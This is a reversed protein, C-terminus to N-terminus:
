WSRGRRLLGAVGIVAVALVTIEVMTDLGRFDALIVTVIDGGHAEPTLAVQEASDGRIPSTRSLTAWIVAFSAAGSVVGAAVNRRTRSPWSAERRRPQPLRSFVGVFVVTFITEVLVAVLAVDPAGTVAYVAALAFGIVSLALVPRLRGSDRVVTFSAAVSLVLLVLIPVDELEVAGVTFSGSTPTFAFGLAVLVGTPVLVAAISTRLDRVETEHLRDSFTNLGRLTRGYWRRPGIADGARGFARAVADRVRGFILFAAGLVWAALAMTNEARADLHYAPSLEVAAGHTVTAADGALAAFPGVVFGGAVAIAALLVVPAVLLVPIAQTETRRAGTFLGLWFRGIYAFSLAAALVALMTVLPGKETAAGFFLEDKFFGLSLPLAALTAAAIGSAVALVPMRRALGGLHSLRSERTAMTVAGATMFLASKAIAHAIVYLAAAGSAAAGGIGYLAVVYGYQSITSHALIQKLQDQGLALVGGVVISALGIVLLGDLVSQDLALLPHVRGIVLVGAAVMAASHLYASVPTPAAMARPLWFHLPVQASKALAAVAILSGAIATTTTGEARAFLEPLSFTGYEDYLLVAGLLLAVASIGTILLAMLAAGRAERQDRDFGILFYSAVATLDFFVFILILDRACALGVMSVMFLTMWPWFRRDETAPRREHELHLPLYAAGYAFVVTGIGTALLAYLAGLGDLAFELRLDLTPAWAVDVSGGGDLWAVLCVAFGALASAVASWALIGGRVPRAIMPRCMM